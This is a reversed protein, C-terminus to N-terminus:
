TTKPQPLLILVAVGICIASDAINFAPWHYNEWYFDLFDVVRGYRLRDIVNGLAGGLIAALATQPIWGRNATHRLFVFVVGLALLTTLALVVQRSGDSLGTWLGFAAGPNFALTLNFLGQIVPRVEGETFARLILLKSLQDAITTVVATIIVLGYRVPAHTPKSEDQNHMLQLSDSNGGVPFLPASSQSRQPHM